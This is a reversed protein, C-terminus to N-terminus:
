IPINKIGTHAITMREILPNSSMADLEGLEWELLGKTVCTYFAKINGDAGGVFINCINNNASFQGRRTPAKGGLLLSAVSGLSLMKNIEIGREFTIKQIGSKPMKLLYPASNNGGEQIPKYEYQNSIGTIRSFGYKFPGIFVIFKFSLASERLSFESLNGDYTFKRFLGNNAM